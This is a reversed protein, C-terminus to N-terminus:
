KGYNKLFRKLNESSYQKSFMKTVPICCHGGIKGGPPYYLPRRVEPRIKTNGENYDIDWETVVQKYDKRFYDCARKMEDAIELHLGYRTLCLVKMLETTDSGQVMKVKFSKRLYNYAVWKDRINDYGVYKIYTDLGQVLRPHVGQVPSHVGGIKKTTGVPVTSHIITLKPSYKKKYDSVISIFNDNYPICIHLYECKVDIWNNLNLDVGMVEFERELIEQVALGVEGKSGVVVSSIREQNGM